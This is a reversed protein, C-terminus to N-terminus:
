VSRIPRVGLRWRSTATPSRMRARGRRGLCEPWVDEAGHVCGALDRKGERAATMSATRRPIRQRLPTPGASMLTSQAGAGPSRLGEVVREAPGETNEVDGAVPVALHRGADLDLTPKAPQETFGVWVM